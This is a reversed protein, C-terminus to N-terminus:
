RAPMGDALQGAISQAAHRIAILLVVRRGVVQLELLEDAPALVVGREGGAPTEIRLQQSHELRNCREHSEEVM